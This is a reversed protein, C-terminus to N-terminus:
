FRVRVVLTIRLYQVASTMLHEGGRRRVPRSGAVAVSRAGTVTVPM